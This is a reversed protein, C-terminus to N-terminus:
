LRSAIVLVSGGVPMILAAAVSPPKPLPSSLRCNITPYLKLNSGTQPDMLLAPRQDCTDSTNHSQTDASSASSSSEIVM